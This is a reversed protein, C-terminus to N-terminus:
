TGQAALPLSFWFTSGQGEESTVGVTGTHAEIIAKCIHLGLGLGAGFGSQARVGGAQYFRQWIREHEQPPLGPGQDVVKTVAQTGHVTVQVAVPQDDSSYKLANTLYNTLVQGLRDADALVPVPGAAPVELHLTRHPHAAGLAVVHDRVVATLDCPGRHLELLGTRMQTADFL